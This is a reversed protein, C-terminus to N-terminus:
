VWEGLQQMAYLGTVVAGLYGEVQYSKEIGTKCWVAFHECNNGVLDYGEEGLRSEARAITEEPSYLQIKKTEDWYVRQQMLKDGIEFSTSSHIKKPANDYKSFYLVFYHSEAGIFKSFSARHICIKGDFDGSEAAFHIVEDNGVYVAYHDYLNMAYRRTVGIVDGPELFEGRILRKFKEMMVEPSGWAMRADNSDLIRAHGTIKNKQIRWGDKEELDDWWMKGGATSMELNPLDGIREIENQYRSLNQLISLSNGGYM